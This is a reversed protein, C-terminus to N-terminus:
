VGLGFADVYDLRRALAFFFMPRSTAASAPDHLGFPSADALCAAQADLSTTTAGTTSIDHKLQKLSIGVFTIRRLRAM